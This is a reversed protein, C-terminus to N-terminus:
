HIASGIIHIQVSKSDPYSIKIGWTAEWRQDPEPDPLPFIAREWGEFWPGRYNDLLSNLDSIYQPQTSDKKIASFGTISPDQDFFARICVSPPPPPELPAPHLQVNNPDFGFDLSVTNKLDTQECDTRQITLTATFPDTSLEEVAKAQYVNTTIFCCVIWFIILLTRKSKLNKLLRFGEM